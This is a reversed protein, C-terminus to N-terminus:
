SNFYSNAMHLSKYWLVGYHRPVFRGGGGRGSQWLGCVSLVTWTLFLFSSKQRPFFVKCSLSLQERAVNKAFHLLLFVCVSAAHFGSAGGTM